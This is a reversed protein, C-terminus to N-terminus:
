EIDDGDDDEDDDSSEDSSDSLIRFNVLVPFMKCLAEEGEATTKLGTIVLKGSVFVLMTCKPKLMRYILGPFLEPEYTCFRSHERALGELRVRFRLDASGVINAVQYKLVKHTHDVKQLTDMLKDLAQQSEEPSKTGIILFKGSRYLMVCARPSQFRMVLSNFARPTYDANRVQQALRKVDLACDLSGNGLVNSGM